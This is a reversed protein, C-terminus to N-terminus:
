AARALQSWNQVLTPAVKGISQPTIVLVLGEAPKGVSLLTMWHSSSSVGLAVRLARLSVASASQTSILPGIEIFGAKQIQEMWPNSLFQPIWMGQTIERERDSGFSNKSCFGQGELGFYTGSLAGNKQLLPINSEFEFPPPPSDIKKKNEVTQPKKLNLLTTVGPLETINTTDSSVSFPNNEDSKSM